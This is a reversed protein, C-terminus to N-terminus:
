KRSAFYVEIFGTVIFFSGGGGRSLVQRDYKAHALYNSSRIIIIFIIRFERKKKNRYIKM